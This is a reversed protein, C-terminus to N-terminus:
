KYITKVGDHVNNGWALFLIGLNLCALKAATLEPLAYMIFMDGIICLILFRCLRKFYEKM